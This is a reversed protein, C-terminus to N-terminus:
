CRKTTYHTYFGIIATKVLQCSQPVTKDLHNLSTNESIAPMKPLDVPRCMKNRDKVSIVAGWIDLINHTHLYNQISLIM